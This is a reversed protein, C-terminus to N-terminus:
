DRTRAFDRAMVPLRRTLTRWLVLPLDVLGPLLDDAAFAAFVLPKRFSKLYDGPSLMGGLMEEVGAVVDRSLNMWAVGSRGRSPVVTEGM